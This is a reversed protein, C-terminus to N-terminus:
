HHMELHDNAEELEEQVEHLQIELADITNDQIEVQQELTVIRQSL